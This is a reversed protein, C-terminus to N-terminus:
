IDVLSMLVLDFYRNDFRMAKRKIGEHVFGLKRYLAIAASNDARAELEIRTLGKAKADAVCAALLREGLGQRRYAALVGMGLTGCHKIAYAWLPLIDCWGVVNGGDTAVFQSANRTMASKVFSAVQDLPLAQVQALYKRERAVADICAHFGEIHADTMRVVAIAM